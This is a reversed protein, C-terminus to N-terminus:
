NQASPTCFLTYQVYGSSGSNYTSISIVLPQPYQTSVLSSSQVTDVQYRAGRTM